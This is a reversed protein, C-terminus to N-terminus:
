PTDGGAEAAGGACGTEDVTVGAIAITERPVDSYGGRRTTDVAAIADVVDMGATVRGFVTYGPQGSHGDLRENDVLNIFFQSTASDPESTRAMALTGRANSLGNTSENRVPGRTRKRELGATLGGGQIMFGPIVRHFITGSYFGDRAYELFNAVTAPANDRDLEAHITGRETDIRVGVKGEGCDGAAGAGSSPAVGASLGFAILTNRLSFWRM